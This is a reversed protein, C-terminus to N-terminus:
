QVKYGKESIQCGILSQRSSVHGLRLDISAGVREYLPSAPNELMERAAHYFRRSRTNWETAKATNGAQQLLSTRRAACLYASAALHTESLHGLISDLITKREAPSTSYYYDIM